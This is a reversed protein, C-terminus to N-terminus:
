AGIPRLQSSSVLHSIRSRLNFRFILM